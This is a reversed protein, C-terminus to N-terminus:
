AFDIPYFERALDAAGKAAGHRPLGVYVQPLTQRLIALIQERISDYYTIISGTLAIEGTRMGAKKWAAIVLDALDRAAKQAITRAVTDNQELAPLLLPALAAVQMKGTEPAYLWTILDGPESINLQRLVAETLCTATSRGDFARMVAILIDRGIAYGSGEDDILYGYGGSRFPNGIADKGFCMSGTGAILIAGPGKVAGALAIEHDGLLRLNGTYGCQRVTNETLEAASRNSIGAIGIVLGQCAALGGPQSAMFDVCDHVTTKVTDRSAGSLNLPGFTNEVLVEGQEDTVCVRTKSGGGDWGCFYM